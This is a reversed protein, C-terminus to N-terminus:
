ATQKRKLKDELTSYFSDQPKIRLFGTTKDSSKVKIATDGSVTLNTHGDISLTGELLTKITLKVGTLQPLVMSYAMSLHPLIPIMVIDHSSPHLIPGGASLSYGTSGTATSLIVGDAKYTTFPLDDIETEITVTRAVSGRALVVDNLAFYKKTDGEIQIELMARRDLWGKGNVIDFIGEIAEEQKFETMFGLNGMNIGTIPIDGSIAIQVARLITGDGGISLLLETGNMKIRATSEDWASCMWASIDKEVLLQIAKEAFLFASKNYPHYLIGIKRM